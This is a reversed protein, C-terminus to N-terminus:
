MYIDVYDVCDGNDMQQMRWFKGGKTNLFDMTGRRVYPKGKHIYSVCCEVKGIFVLHLEDVVKIEGDLILYDDNKSSQQGGVCKYSGDSLKTIDVSGLETDSIWQLRVGHKGLLKKELAPNVMTVCKATTTQPVDIQIEKVCKPCPVMGKGLKLPCGDNGSKHGYGAGYCDTCGKGWDAGKDDNPTLVFGEGNCTACVIQLTGDCLECRKKYNVDVADIKLMGNEEAFLFDVTARVGNDVIIASYVNDAIRSVSKLGDGSAGDQADTRFDWVAYGDGDEYDYDRYLKDAFRQTCFRDADKKEFTKSGFVYDTYLESILACLKASDAGVAVCHQKGEGVKGECNPSVVPSSQNCSSLSALLFLGALKSYLTKM